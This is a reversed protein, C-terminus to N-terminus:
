LRKGHIAIASNAWMMAERLKKIAEEREECPNIQDVIWLAYEKAKNRVIEHGQATNPDIPPHHMFMNEIDFYDM